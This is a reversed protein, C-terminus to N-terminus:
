LHHVDDCQAIDVRLGDFFLRRFVRACLRKRIKAFDEIVRGIEIRDDHARAFVRMRERTHPSSLLRSASPYEFEHSPCNGGRPRVSELRRSRAQARPARTPKARTPNASRLPRSSSCPRPLQTPADSLIRVREPLTPNPNTAPVPAQAAM